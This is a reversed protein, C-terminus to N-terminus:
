ICGERHGWIIDVLRDKYFSIDVASGLSLSLIYAGYEIANEMTATVDSLDCRACAWCAKYVALRASPAMGVATGFGHFHAGSVASGAATSATHTVHGSIDRSSMYDKGMHSKY